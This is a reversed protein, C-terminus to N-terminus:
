LSQNWATLRTSTRGISTTRSPVHVVILLLLTQNTKLFGFSLDDTDDQLLPQFSLMSLDAFNPPSPKNSDQDRSEETLNPNRQSPAQRSRSDCTPTESSYHNMLCRVQIPDQKPTQSIRQQISIQPWNM